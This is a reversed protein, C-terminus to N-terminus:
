TTRKPPHARVAAEDPETGWGPGTPLLLHGDRITPTVTFLEDFWPVNDVDLEMIRFNPAVACWHANMMTALHGYFNHPAVNVEYTDAMAAIKLAEAVGNWPADIIAVDVAQAELFARYGRRGYQSELSAVPITTRSRIDRLAAPDFSDIEVWLLDFPELARAAKVFGETRFNFNLDVLIDVDRGAGDRLAAVQEALGALLRREANLSPFEADSRAFGPMHVYPAGDDLVFINTKLATFGRAAAEKGAAAVDRLTRVPPIQMEGSSSVRFTACHSWYLRFRERQPGGFLAYVPVGLARATVDLLANEIAAIAQQIVGGPAQRRAAYLRTVIAEWARPDRGLVLPVLGDIAAAVGVGGFTENYESWGVVGDDTTIKLFDFAGKGADAHLHEVRAVKM